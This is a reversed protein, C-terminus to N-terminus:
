TIISIITISVEITLTRILINERMREENERENERDWNWEGDFGILVLRRNQDWRKNKCWRKNWNIKICFIVSCGTIWPVLASLDRTSWSDSFPRDLEDEAAEEDRLWSPQRMNEWWLDSHKPENREMSIIKWRFIENILYYNTSFDDGSGGGDKPAVAPRSEVFFTEAAM